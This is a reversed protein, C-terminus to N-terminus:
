FTVSAGKKPLTTAFLKVEDWRVSSTNNFERITLSKDTVEIRQRTLFLAPIFLLPFPFFLICLTIPISTGIMPYTGTWGESVLGGITLLVVWIVTILGAVFLAMSVTPKLKITLPLPLAHDDPAPQPFALPALSTDGAVAAQRMEQRRLVRRRMRPLFILLIFTSLGGLAGIILVMLNGTLFGCGILFLGYLIFFGIATRSMQKFSQIDDM